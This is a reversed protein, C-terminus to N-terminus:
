CIHRCTYVSSPIPSPSGGRLSPRWIYRARATVSATSWLGTSCMSICGLCCARVRRPERWPGEQCCHNRLLQRGVGGCEGRVRVWRANEERASRPGSRPRSLPLPGPPRPALSERWGGVMADLAGCGRCAGAPATSDRPREPTGDNSLTPQEGFGSCERV